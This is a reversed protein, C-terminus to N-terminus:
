KLDKLQFYLALVFVLESGPILSDYGVIGVLLMVFLIYSLLITLHILIVLTYLILSLRGIDYILNDVFRLCPCLHYRPYTDFDTRSCDM